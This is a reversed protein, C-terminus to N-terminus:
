CHKTVSMNHTNYKVANSNEKLTFKENVEGSLLPVKM